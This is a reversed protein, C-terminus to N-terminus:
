RAERTREVERREMEETSLEVLVPGFEEREGWDRWVGVLGRAGERRNVRPGGGATREWGKQARPHTRAFLKLDLADRKHKLLEEHIAHTILPLAEGSLGLDACYTRAFLSPPLPSSLDWEIRDRLVHTSIQVDLQTLAMADSTCERHGPLRRGAM